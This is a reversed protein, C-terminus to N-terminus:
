ASGGDIAVYPTGGSYADGGDIYLIAGGGGGSEVVILREDLQNLKPVRVVEVENHKFLGM